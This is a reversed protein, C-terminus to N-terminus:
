DFPSPTPGPGLIIQAEPKPIKSRAAGSFFPAFQELVRHGSMAGGELDPGLGIQRPRPGRGLVIQAVRKFVEPLAAGSFFPALQQLVWLGSRAGGSLASSLGFKAM